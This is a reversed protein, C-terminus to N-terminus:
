TQVRDLAVYRVPVGFVAGALIHGIEHSLALGFILPLVPLSYRLVTWQFRKYDESKLLLRIRELRSSM